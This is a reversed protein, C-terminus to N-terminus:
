GWRGRLAAAACAVSCFRGHRGDTFNRWRVFERGCTECTAVAGHRARRVRERRRDHPAPLEDIRLLEGWSHIGLKRYAVAVYRQVSGRAIGLWLAVEPRSRGVRLLVLIEYERPTLTRVPSM